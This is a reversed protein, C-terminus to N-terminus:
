ADDEGFMPLHLSAHKKTSRVNFVERTLLKLQCEFGSLAREEAAQPRIKIRYISRRGKFSTIYGGEHLRGSQAGKGGGVYLGFHRTPLYITPWQCEGPALEWVKPDGLRFDWTHSRNALGNISRREGKKPGARVEFEGRCTVAQEYHGRTTQVGGLPHGDLCDDYDFAPFRAEYTLDFAYQPGDFAVRVKKLPEVVEYTMSGDSLSKAALEGSFPRKNAYSLEAGDVSYVSRFRAFGRNTSVQIHNIGFVNAQPDLITLCMRDNFFRESGPLPRGGRLVEASHLYEDQEIM